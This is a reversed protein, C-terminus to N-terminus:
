QKLSPRELRVLATPTELAVIGDPLGLTVPLTYEGPEPPQTTFRVRGTVSELETLLHVPGALAVTDQSASTTAWLGRAEPEELLLPLSRRILVPEAEVTVTVTEPQVSTNSVPLGAADTAFIAVEHSGAEAAVQAVVGEVQDLVASRGRVLVGEPNVVARLTQGEPLPHTLLAVVPVRRTTVSEVAGIVESPSVGRLAIDEPGSIRIIEEFPGSVGSLDITADFSESRLRDVRNDPGSVTIEVFDPIGSAVQHSSMGVTTTPILLSRQTVTVTTNSVFLWILGSIAVAGLKMPWHDILRSLLDTVTQTARRIV